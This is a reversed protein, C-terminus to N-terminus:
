TKSLDGFKFSLVKPAPQLYVRNFLVVKPRLYHSDMALIYLGLLKM